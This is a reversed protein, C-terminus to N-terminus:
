FGDDELALSPAQPPAAAPKLLALDMAEPVSLVHQARTLAVYLLRREEPDPPSGQASIPRRDLPWRFDDVLAVRPLSQGKSAHVTQSTVQPDTTVGEFSSPAREAWDVWAVDEVADASRVATTYDDWSRWGQLGVADAPVPEGRRLALVAQAHLAVERSPPAITLGRGQAQILHELGGARTRSVAHYTGDLPERTVETSPGLGVLRHSAGCAALVANAREAVAPGFRHSGTLVAECEGAFAWPGEGGQRWGYIRQYPDGARVRQVDQQRVWAAMAPSLDQAEDILLGGAPAKMGSLQMLKPGADHFFPLDLVTPDIMARWLRSADDVAKALDVAAQAGPRQMLLWWEAAPVHQVLPTPDASAVFRELVLELVRAYAPWWDVSSPGRLLRAVVDASWPVNLKDACPSAFRAFALGHFTRAHVNRGFRASAETALAKNFALYLWTTKPRARAYAVLTHTKGTGALATLRLLPAAHEVAAAQEQTLPVGKGSPLVPRAAARPPPLANLGQVGQLAARLSHSPSPDNM